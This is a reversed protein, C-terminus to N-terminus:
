MMEANNNVTSRVCKWWVRVGGEEGQRNSGVGSDKILTLWMTDGLPATAPRAAHDM